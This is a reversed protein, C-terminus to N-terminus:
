DSKVERLRRAAEEPPLANIHFGSGWEFGAAKALRPMIEIRWHTIAPDYENLPATHLVFNYPPDNLVKTTRRLVDALVTACSELDGESSMAFDSAHEKPMVITEFPFRSAFPALAVFGDNEVVIRKKM